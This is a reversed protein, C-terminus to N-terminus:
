MMYVVLVHAQTSHGHSPLDESYITPPAQCVVVPSASCLMRSALAASGAPGPGVAEPAQGPPPLHAATLYM